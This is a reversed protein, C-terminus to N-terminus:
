RRVGSRMRARTRRADMPDRVLPRLIEVRDGQYLKSRMSARRGFIAIGYGADLRIEPFEDLVGSAAIAEGCNTGSDVDVYYRGLRGDAGTYVIEVRM